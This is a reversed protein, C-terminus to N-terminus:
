PDSPLASVDPPQVQLRVTELHLVDRIKIGIRLALAADDPNYAEKIELGSLTQLKQPDGGPSTPSTTM